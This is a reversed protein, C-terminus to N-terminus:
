CGFRLEMIMGVGIQFYLRMKLQCNLKRDKLGTIMIVLLITIIIATQVRIMSGTEMQIMLFMDQSIVYVMTAHRLM